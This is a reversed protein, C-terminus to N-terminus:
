FLLICYRINDRPLVFYFTYICVLIYLPRIANVTGFLSSMVGIISDLLDYYFLMMCCRM